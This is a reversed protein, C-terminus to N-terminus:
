GFRVLHLLDEAIVAPDLNPPIVMRLRQQSDVVYVGAPHSMFYWGEPSVEGREVHISWSHLVAHVDEPVGSVGMFSEHFHGVYREMAEPTDREPDVTVMVVSVDGRRDEPLHEIANRLDFLTLPCVDPCHTYGFYIVVFESTSESLVFPGDSATTLRIDPLTEPEAFVVSAYEYPAERGLVTIGTVVAAVLVTAVASLTLARARTM